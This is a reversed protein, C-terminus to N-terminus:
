RRGFIYLDNRKMHALFEEAVNTEVFSVSASKDQPRLFVDLLLGGYIEGVIDKHTARDPLNKLLITRRNQKPPMHQDSKAAIFSASEYGADVPFHADDVGFPRPSNSFPNRGGQFRSLSGAPYSGKYHGEDRGWRSAATEPLADRAQDIPPDVKRAAPLDAYASARTESDGRILI